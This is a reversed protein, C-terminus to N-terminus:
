LEFTMALNTGKNPIVIMAGFQVISFFLAQGVKPLWRMVQVGIVLTIDKKEKRRGM